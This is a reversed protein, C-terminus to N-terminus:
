YFYRERNQMFAKAQFINNSVTVTVLVSAPLTAGVPTVEVKDVGEAMEVGDRTVTPGSWAYVVHWIANNNNTATAEGLKLFDAGSATLSFNSPIAQSLDQAIMDAISRGKITAEVSRLGSNWAINAQQFIQAVIAVIILLIAMAVLLEILTFASRRNRARDSALLSVHMGGSPACIMELLKIDARKV